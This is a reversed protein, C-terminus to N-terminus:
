GIVIGKEQICEGTAMGLLDVVACCNLLIIWSYKSTQPQRSLHSAGSIKEHQGRHKRRYRCMTQTWHLCQKLARSTSLRSVLFSMDADM